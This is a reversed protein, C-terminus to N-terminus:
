TLGLNKKTVANGKKQFITTLHKNVPDMTSKSGTIGGMDKNSRGQCRKNRFNAEERYTNLHVGNNPARDKAKIGGTGTMDQNNSKTDSMAEEEVTKDGGETGRTQPKIARALHDMNAQTAESSQQQVDRM